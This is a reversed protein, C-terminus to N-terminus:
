IIPEYIIKEYNCDTSIIKNLEDIPIPPSTERNQLIEWNIKKFFKHEKLKQIAPRNAPNKNMCITILDKAEDSMGPPFRLRAGAIAKYLAGIDNTFFPTTGTLMEYLNVGILYIDAPKYAGTNNLLEPPLYAPTGCISMAPDEQSVNVKALSFDALKAHGYKDVLINSPKLDRYIINMSHLYEIALIIESLYFRAANENLIKFHNMIHTFDGYPCYELIMYIHTKSQFSWELPIIFPHKISKLTKCESIAYKLQNRNRLTLKKLIKMAYIEGTDKKCVKIVKGFTGVGLEDLNEFSDETLANEISNATEVSMNSVDSRSKKREEPLRTGRDSDSSFINFYNYANLVKDYWENSMDTFDCYYTLSQERTIIKFGEQSKYKLSTLSVTQIERIQFQIDPPLDDILNSRKSYHKFVGEESDLVLFVKQDEAGCDNTFWVEGSFSLPTEENAAM